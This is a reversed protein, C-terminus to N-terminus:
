VREGEEVPGMTHQLRELISVFAKIDSETLDRPPDQTETETELSVTPLNSTGTASIGDPNGVIALGFSYHLKEALDHLASIDDNYRAGSPDCVWCIDLSNTPM